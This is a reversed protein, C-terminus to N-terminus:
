SPTIPLTEATRATRLDPNLRRITEVALHAQMQLRQQHDTTLMAQTMPSYRIAQYTEFFTRIQNLADPVDLVSDRNQTSPGPEITVRLTQEVRHFFETITESEQISLGATQFANFVEGLLDEATLATPQPHIWRLPNLFWTLNLTNLSIQFRLRYLLFGAIAFTLGIGWVKLGANKMYNWPKQLLNVLHLHAIAQILQKGTLSLWTLKEKWWRAFGQEREYNIAAPPTPDFAIWGHSEQDYVECWAHAHHQRIIWQRSTHNLEQSYFGAAVRAPIGISRLLLVMGSAYYKCYAPRRNQIFDVIPDGQPNLKVDLSYVFQTRFFIEIQRAAELSSHPHSGVVQHAIPQLQTALAAPLATNFTLEVASLPTQPLQSPQVPFPASIRYQNLSTGPFCWISPGRAYKLNISKGVEFGTTGYSLPLAGHLDAFVQVQRTLVSPSTQPTLEQNPAAAQPFSVEQTTDTMTIWEDPIPQAQGKETEWGRETYTSFVQTRLYGPPKVGDVTAVITPELRLSSQRSLILSGSAGMQDSFSDLGSGSASELWGFVRFLNRSILNLSTSGILTLGCIIVSTFCIIGWYRFKETTTRFAFPVQNVQLRILEILLWVGFLCLILLVVHRSAPNLSTGAALALVTSSALVGVDRWQRRQPLYWVWVASIESFFGRILSAAPTISAFSALYYGGSIILIALVAIGTRKMQNRTPWGLEFQNGYASLMGLGCGVSLPWEQYALGFALIATLMLGLQSLHPRSHM